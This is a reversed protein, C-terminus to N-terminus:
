RDALHTALTTAILAALDDGTTAATAALFSRPPVTHTGLEQDVAVDSSSGVIAVAGDAQYGISARLAGTRLWPASHDQGPPHSLLEVVESELKQAALDLAVDMATVIDLRALREEAQRLGLVLSMGTGEM